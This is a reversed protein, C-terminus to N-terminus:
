IYRRRRPESLSAFLSGIQAVLAMIPAGWVDFLTDRYVENPDKSNYIVPLNEGTRLSANQIPRDYGRSSGAGVSFDHKALGEPIFEITASYQTCPYTHRNRKSGSSCTHNSGTVSVVTGTTKKSNLIFMVRNIAFGIAVILFIGSLAALWPQKIM